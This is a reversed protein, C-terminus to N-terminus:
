AGITKIVGSYNYAIRILSDTTDLFFCWDGDNPLYATTPTGELTLTAYQVTPANGLEQGDVQVTGGEVEVSGKIVVNNLVTKPM